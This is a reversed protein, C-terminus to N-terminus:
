CHSAPRRELTVVVEDRSSEGAGGASCVAARRRHCYAPKSETKGNPVCEPFLVVVFFRPTVDSPSPVEVPFARTRSPAHKTEPHTSPLCSTLTKISDRTSHSLSIVPQPRNNDDSPPPHDHPSA